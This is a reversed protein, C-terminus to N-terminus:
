VVLVRDTASFLAIM